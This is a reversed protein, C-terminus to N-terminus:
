KQTKRQRISSANLKDAELEMEPENTKSPDTTVAASFSPTFVQSQAGLEEGSEADNAVQQDQKEQLTVEPTLSSDLKSEPELDTTKTPVSPETNKAPLKSVVLQYLRPLVQNGALGLGAGTLLSVLTSNMEAFLASYQPALTALLPQAVGMFSLAGLAMFKVNNRAFLTTAQNIWGRNKTDLDYAAIKASSAFQGILNGMIQKSLYGAASGLANSLALTKPRVAGTFSLLLAKFKDSVTNNQDSTTKAYTSLEKLIGELFFDITARTVDYSANGVYNVWSARITQRSTLSPTNTGTEMPTTTAADTM